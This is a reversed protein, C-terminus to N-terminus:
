HMFHPDEKDKSKVMQMTCICHWLHLKHSFLAGLMIDNPFLDSPTSSDTQISSINIYIYM